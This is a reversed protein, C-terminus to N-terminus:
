GRNHVRTCVVEGEVESGPCRMKRKCNPAIRTSAYRM